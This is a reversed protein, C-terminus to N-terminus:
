DVESSSLRAMRRALWAGVLLAAILILNGNLVRSARGSEPLFAPTAQLTVAPTATASVPTPAPQTPAPQTPAVPVTTPTPTPAATPTPADIIIIPVQDSGGALDNGYWDTAGSVEVSNASGDIAALATFVTLVELTGHPPVPGTGRSAVVDHWTLTGNAADVQDPPPVAYSFALWNPDYTDLLPATTMTTYGDNTIVVTFTLPMGVQPPLLASGAALLLEKNVPSSGGISETDTSVATAGGLAGGVGEADHVEAYNVVAPQPHEAIFGVILLVQQGPALDGGFCDTLDDWHLWDTGMDDPGCPAADHYALVDSNFTDTLPLTTVNFAANNVIEITFTLYEGVHVLNSDRGLQKDVYIAGQARAPQTPFGWVLFLLAIMALALPLVLKHVRKLNMAVSRESAIIYLKSYNPIFLL